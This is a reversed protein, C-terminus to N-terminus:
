HKEKQIKEQGLTSQRRLSKGVRGILFGTVPLLVLVFITLQPSMLFLTILFAAVTLPERFVIELSSMISWQIEQVDNTMRVMLDGKREQSFYQLPLNMVKNYLDYRVDRIVGNRIKALYFMAMYRFLNKVFFM